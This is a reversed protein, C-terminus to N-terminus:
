FASSRFFSSIQVLVVFLVVFFCVCYLFEAEAINLNGVCRDVCLCNGGKARRNFM